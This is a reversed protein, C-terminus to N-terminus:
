RKVIFENFENWSKQQQNLARKTSFRVAWIVLVVLVVLASLYFYIQKEWQTALQARVEEMTKNQAEYKKSFEELALNLARENQAQIELNAQVQSQLSESLVRAGSELNAVRTQLESVRSREANLKTKLMGIEETIPDELQNQAMVFVPLLLLLTLAIRRM